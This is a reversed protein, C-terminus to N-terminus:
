VLDKTVPAEMWVVTSPVRMPPAPRTKVVLQDLDIEYREIRAKRILARRCTAMVRGYDEALAGDPVVKQSVVTYAM